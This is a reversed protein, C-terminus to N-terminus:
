FFMRLAILLMVLAFLGTIVKNTIRYGIRTGLLSGILVGIVAASTVLPEIHGHAYYIFASAVATVGIMFNSTATAAKMPVGCFLNMAPVKIVGGGVGLLGSINGAIFSIGMGMPIRRVSYEVIKGTAGDLYKGNLRAGPVLETQREGRKRSRHLMIFGMIMIIVAFFKKLLLGSIMNATIGGLIAGITTTIELIMGLRINTQRREVYVSAAASSTAIIAVLSTAIATHMPIHFLIVLFPILFLGGGIGFLAGLIGTVFGGAIIILFSELSMSSM